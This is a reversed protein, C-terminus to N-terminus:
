SGSHDRRNKKKYKEGDVGWLYDTRVKNDQNLMIEGLQKRENKFKKREKAYRSACEMLLDSFTVEDNYLLWKKPLKGKHRFPLACYPVEKAINRKINKLEKGNSRIILSYIFTKIVATIDESIINWASCISNEIVEWNYSGPHFIRETVVEDHVLLRDILYLSCIQSTRRKLVTERWNALPESFDYTELIKEPHVCLAQHLQKRLDESAFNQEYLENLANTTEGVIADLRSGDGWLYQNLADKGNLRKRMMSLTDDTGTLVAYLCHSEDKFKIKKALFDLLTDQLLQTLPIKNKKSSVCWEKIRKLNNNTLYHCFSMLVVPDYEDKTGWMEKIAMKMRTRCESERYFVLDIVEPNMEMLGSLIRDDSVKTITM